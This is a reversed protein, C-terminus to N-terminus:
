RRHRQRSADIPNPQTGLPCSASPQMWDDEGYVGEAVDRTGSRVRDSEEATLRRRWTWMAAESDRRVDRTRRVAAEAPNEASSLRQVRQACSETWALGTRDYLARTGAVPAAALDEYRMVHWDPHDDRFRLAVSNICRWLLISQDILDPPRAAAAEIEAAFSSLYSGMLRPQSSLNTFDFNWGLRKLSGAFAAPHRILIVVQMDFTRALWEASFFAIPDKVLPRERGARWRAVHGLERANAALNRPSRVTRLHALLPPRLSLMRDVAPRYRDGNVEDVLQYWREPPAGLWSLRNIPNFPEHIHAVGSGLGLLHGVWTTGSRHAGTVLIPRRTGSRGEDARGADTARDGTV